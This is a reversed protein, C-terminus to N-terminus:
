KIELAHFDDKLVQFHLIICHQMLTGRLFQLSSTEDRYLCGLHIGKPERWQTDILQIEIEGDTEERDIYQLRTTAPNWEHALHLIVHTRSCVQIESVLSKDFILEITEPDNM